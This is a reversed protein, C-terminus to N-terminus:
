NKEGEAHRLWGDPVISVLFVIAAGVFEKPTLSEGLFLFAFGVAFPAEMAFIVASKLAGLYKQCVIQMIFGFCTTVVANFLASGLAFAPWSFVNWEGKLISPNKSGFGLILVFVIALFIAVFQWLGLAISDKEQRTFNETFLIHLAAAIAAFVTWLDGPNLEKWWSEFTGESKDTLIYLGLLALVVVIFHRYSVEKRMLLWGFVPVFPVYLATLFGSKGATTLQLGITQPWIALFLLTGLVGGHVILSRQPKFFKRPFFLVMLIVSLLFRWFLFPWIGVLFTAKKVLFFSAGWGLTAIFLGAASAHKRMFLPLNTALAEQNM